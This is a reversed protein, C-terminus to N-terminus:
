LGFISAFHWHRMGIIAVDLSPSNDALPDAVVHAAAYAKRVWAGARPASGAKLTFQEISGDLTPLNITANTKAIM